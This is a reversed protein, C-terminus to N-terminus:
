RYVEKANTRRKIPPDCKTVSFALGCHSCIWTVVRESIRVFPYTGDTKKCYPCAPQDSM